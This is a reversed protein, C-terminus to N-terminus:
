GKDEILKVEESNAGVGRKGGGGGGISSVGGEVRGTQYYYLDIVQRGRGRILDEIGGIRKM